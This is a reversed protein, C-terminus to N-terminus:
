TGSAPNVELLKSLTLLTPYRPNKSNLYESIQSAAVGSRRHLDQQTWGKKKVLDSLRKPLDKFHLM